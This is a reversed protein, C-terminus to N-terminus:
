GGRARAARVLRTAAIMSLGFAAALGAAGLVVAGAIWRSPRLPSPDPRQSPGWTRAALDVLPDVALAPRAARALDFRARLWRDCLVDRAAVIARMRDTAGADDPHRDAHFSHVARRYARRIEETSAAPSVDLIRYHDVFASMRRLAHWLRPAAARGLDDVAISVPSRREFDEARPVLTHRHLRGVM